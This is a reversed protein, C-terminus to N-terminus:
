HCSSRENKSLNKLVFCQKLANEWVYNDACFCNVKIKFVIRFTKENLIDCVKKKRFENM